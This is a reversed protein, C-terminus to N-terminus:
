QKIEVNGKENIVFPITYYNTWVKRGKVEPHEDKRVFNLKFSQQVTHYDKKKEDNWREWNQEYEKPVPTIYFKYEGMSKFEYQEGDEQAAILEGGACANQKIQVANLLNLDLSTTYKYSHYISKGKKPEEPLFKGDTYKFKLDYDNNEKDIYKVEIKSLVNELKRNGSNESWELSYIKCEETNINAKVLEKIKEMGEDSGMALDNGGFFCSTITVTIFFIAFLKKLLNM